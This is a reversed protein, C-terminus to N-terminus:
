RGTGALYTAGAPGVRAAHPEGAALDIRDGERLVVERTGVVFTMEGALVVRAERHVHTHEAYSVGAPDTWETVHLGDAQLEGVLAQKDV